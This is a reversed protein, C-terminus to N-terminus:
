DLFYVSQIYLIILYGGAAWHHSPVTIGCTFTNNAQEATTYSSSLHHFTAWEFVSLFIHFDFDLIRAAALFASFLGGM